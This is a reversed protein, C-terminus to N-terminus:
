NVIGHTNFSFPKWTGEHLVMISTFGIKLLQEAAEAFHNILDSPHHTDSSLTIPINQSHLLELVWPSPYPTTSKKQYLGRTNVEVIANSEKILDITKKIETQYWSDTESFFKGAINQIKAKDMHGVIDPCAERIMRRTLEFYRVFAARFDGHFIKELGELFQNHPGDIEWHTGDPFQEVFHISGITYDLQDKFQTPSISGPVYDIELGKYLQIGKTSSKLHDLTLLYDNLSERKM